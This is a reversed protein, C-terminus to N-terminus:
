VDPASRTRHRLMAADVFASTAGLYADLEVQQGTLREALL